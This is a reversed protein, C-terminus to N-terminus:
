DIEKFLFELSFQEKFVVTELSKNLRNDKTILGHGKLISLNNNFSDESAGILERMEKRKRTSLLLDYKDDVPLNNLLSHQYMIEALLDLEKPRLKSVPSRSKLVILFEKYFSRNTVKIPIRKM